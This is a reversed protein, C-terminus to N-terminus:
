PSSPTNTAVLPVTQWEFILKGFTMKDPLPAGLTPAKLPEFRASKAFALAAADADSSGSSPPLITASLPNGQANVLVQVETNPLVDSSSQPPLHVPTLLRRTALPGEIRLASPVSPSPPRYIESGLRDAEAEMKMQFRPPLNTQMFATFAAGLQEPMLPLPRAPETWNEPQFTLQPIKLWAASFNEYHPMVLLTPDQLALMESSDKGAFHIIAVPSPQSPAAARPNGLLIVLAVQALFVVGVALWLKPRFRVPDPGPPNNGAAEPQEATASTM